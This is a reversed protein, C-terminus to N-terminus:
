RRGQRPVCGHCQAFVIQLHIWLEKKNLIHDSSEISTYFYYSEPCTSCYFLDSMISTKWDLALDEGNTSQHIILIVSTKPSPLAKVFSPPHCLLM